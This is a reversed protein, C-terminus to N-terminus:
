RAGPAFILNDGVIIPSEMSITGAPLRLPEGLGMSVDINFEMAQSQDLGDCVIDPTYPKLRTALSRSLGRSSELAAKNLELEDKLIWRCLRKIM